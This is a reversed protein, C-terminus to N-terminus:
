YGVRCFPACCVPPHYQPAKACPVKFHSTSSIFIMIADISGTAQQELQKLLNEAASILRQDPNTKKDIKINRPITKEWLKIIKKGQKVKEATGDPPFLEESQVLELSKILLYRVALCCSFPHKEGSRNNVQLNKQALGCFYEFSDLNRIGIINACLKIIRYHPCTPTKETKKKPQLNTDEWELDSQNINCSSLFKEFCLKLLDDTKPDQSINEAIKREIELITLAKKKIM